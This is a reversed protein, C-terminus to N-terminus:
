KTSVVRSVPIVEDWAEEHGDYHVKLETASIVELVSARYVSERWTVRVRDGEKFPSVPADGAKKTNLGQAVRVKRPPPPSTMDGTVYGKIRPLAVDEDWRSPYGAYHVRYRSKGRIEIIYAPYLLKEDGWEVLVHDGVRYPRSCGPLSAGLFAFGLVLELTSRRSLRRGDSLSM